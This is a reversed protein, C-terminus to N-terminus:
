WILDNTYGQFKRGSPWESWHCVKQSPICPHFSRTRRSPIMLACQPQPFSEVIMMGNRWELRIIMIQNTTQNGDIKNEWFDQTALWGLQRVWIKWLPPGVVLWMIILEDDVHTTSYSDISVPSIMIMMWIIRGPRQIATGLSSRLRTRHRWHPTRVTAMSQHKDM